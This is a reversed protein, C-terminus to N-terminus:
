FTDKHSLHPGDLEPRKFLFNCEMCQIVPIHEAAAIRVKVPPNCACEFLVLRSGPKKQGGFASFDPNGDTPDPIKELLLLLAPNFHDQHYDQGGKKVITLGLETCCRRWAKNHGTKECIAHGLEHIITGRIQILSEEAHASIEVFPHLAEGLKWTAKICRGRRKPTGDGYVLKTNELVPAHEPAYQIVADRVAQLYEEHTM